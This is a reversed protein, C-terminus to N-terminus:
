APHCQPSESEPRDAPRAVQAALLRLAEAAAIFGMSATVAVGSGYGACALAAGATDCADPRTVPEASFVAAIGFRRRPDRPYGHEKRLRARMKALLPDQETRALDDVRLRTPDSKGGASGCCVLAQRSARCHVAMATKVRVNDIADLVLDGQALLQGVNEETVFDEIVTVRCRPNIALVRQRMAEVKAMGYADGLAHIQRNTNSEAIMDLDILTLAGVASRALAEVAWSGVGGLGAVCVHAAAFRAAAEAGYLRTVGGFRREYDVDQDAVPESM